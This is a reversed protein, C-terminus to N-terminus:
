QNTRLHEEVAKGSCSLKRAESDESWGTPVISNPASLWFVVPEFDGDHQPRKSGATEGCPTSLLLMGSCGRADKERDWSWSRLTSHFTDPNATDLGM